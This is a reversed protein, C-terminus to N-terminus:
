KKNKRQEWTREISESVKPEDRLRKGQAMQWREFWSIGAKVNTFNEPTQYAEDAQAEDMSVFKYGRKELMGFFEDATDAVLRSPTLVLTQNIDRGFMEASYAEYHELMRSMYDLYEAIIEAMKKTDKNKRAEDYAFSYMWESNDFTYKISKLNRSNLWNEFKIKDEATRGTNLFPYSFYRLPLNKEALIERAIRENKEANAIYDELPTDYFWIHRFGGIGVELNADRWARVVNARSQSIKGADSIAAGQLFGIAPIKHAVLKGILIRATEDYSEDANERFNPPISVFGVAIKKAKGDGSKTQANVSLRTTTSFVGLLLASILAFVLSATWLSTQFKGTGANKNKIIREIRHM